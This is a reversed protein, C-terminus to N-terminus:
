AGARDCRVERGTCQAPGDDPHGLQQARGALDQEEMTAHCRAGCRLRGPERRLNRRSRRCPRQGHDGRSRHCRGAAHRRRHGHGDHDPRSSVKTIARSGSARAASATQIEDAIFVVGNDTCWQAMAPLFGAAPVIFGGEGQIPEIIVAALNTAGVEAEIRAIAREAAQPGDLEDRLPYSTPM